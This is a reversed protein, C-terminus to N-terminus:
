RATSYVLWLTLEQSESWHVVLIYNSHIGTLLRQSVVFFFFFPSYIFHNLHPINFHELLYGLYYRRLMLGVFSIPGYPSHSFERAGTPNLGVVKPVSWRQEVSQAVLDSPLQEHYHLTEEKLLLLEKLRPVVVENIKWNMKPITIKIIIYKLLVEHRGIRDTIMVRSVFQTQAGGSNSKM